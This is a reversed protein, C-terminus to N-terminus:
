ILNHSVQLPQPNLRLKPQLPARPLHKIKVLQVIEDGTTCLWLAAPRNRQNQGLIKIIQTPGKGMVQPQPEIVANHYRAGQGRHGIFQPRIHRRDIVINKGCPRGRIHNIATHRGQVPTPHQHNIIPFVQIKWKTFRAANRIHCLKGGLIFATRDRNPHNIGIERLHRLRTMIHWGIALKDVRAPIMARGTPVAILAAFIFPLQIHKAPQFPPKPVM